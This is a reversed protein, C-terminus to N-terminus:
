NSKNKQRQEVLKRAESVNVVIYATQKDQSFSVYEKLLGHSICAELMAIEDITYDFHHAIDQITAVTKTSHWDRYDKFTNFVQKLREM